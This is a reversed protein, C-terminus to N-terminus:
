FSASMEAYKSSKHRTSFAHKLLTLMSLCPLSALSIKLLTLIKPGNYKLLVSNTGIPQFIVFVFLFTNKSKLRFKIIFLFIKQPM